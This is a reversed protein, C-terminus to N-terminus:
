HVMSEDNKAETVFLVSSKPTNLLGFHQTIFDQGVYKLPCKVIYLASASNGFFQLRLFSRDLKLSNFEM